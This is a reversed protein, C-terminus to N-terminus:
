TEKGQWLHTHVIWLWRGSSTLDPHLQTLLPASLKRWPFQKDITHRIEQRWRCAIWAFMSMYHRYQRDGNPGCAEEKGIRLWGRLPKQDTAWPLRSQGDRTRGLVNHVTIVLQRAFTLYGEATNDNEPTSSCEKHMTLFNLMGFSDTWLYRGQHGVSNATDM